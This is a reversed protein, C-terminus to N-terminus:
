NLPVFEFESIVVDLRGNGLPDDGRFLWLNMRAAAAGADPVDAGTYTWQEIVNNKRDTSSFSISDATWTFEHTTRRVSPMVWTHQNGPTFYPQVTYGANTPNDPDGWRSFEVDIERNAQVQEDDWTFLGLVANPDLSDVPSKISFRYTGYGLPDALIVESSTWVDNRNRIRLRLNGKRDVFVNRDSFVNPGPGVEGESHKVRWTYGAFEITNDASVRPRADLPATLVALMSSVVFLGVFFKSSVAM